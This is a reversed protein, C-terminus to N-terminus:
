LASACMQGTKIRMASVVDLMFIMGDGASDTQASRRITDIVRQALSDEVFVEIKVKPVFNATYEMANYRERGGKQHGFGNVDTVTMGEVGMGVLAAKVEDVKFPKVIASIIKM